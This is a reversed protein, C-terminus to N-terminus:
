ERFGDPAAPGWLNANSPGPEWVKPRQPFDEHWPRPEFYGLREDLMLDLQTFLEVITGDPDRHYSFVNHGPGHRGPGWVLKHGRATVWDLAQQLHSLDRMGYAIHHIRRARDSRLLNITHHDVGCRLFYFFDGISDSFRFGLVDRYFDVARRVDAAFYCVHGLKQPRRTPPRPRRHDIESYLDITNDEPDCFRLMSPIGPEPDTLRQSAIGAQRLEASADELAGDVQFALHVRHTGDGDCVSMSHHDLDSALFACGATQDVLDFDLVETYYAVMRELDPTRLSVHGLRM